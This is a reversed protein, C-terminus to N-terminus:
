TLGFHKQRKKEAFTRSRVFSIVPKPREIGAGALEMFGPPPPLRETRYTVRLGQRPKRNIEVPRGDRHNTVIVWEGWVPDLVVTEQRQARLERARFARLSVRQQAEQQTWGKSM